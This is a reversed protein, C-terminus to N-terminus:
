FEEWFWEPSNLKGGGAGLMWGRMANNLAPACAVISKRLRHMLTNKMNLPCSAVCIGCNTGTKVFMERCKASDAQWMKVKGSGTESYDVSSMENDTSLAKAPCKEACRGCKKCFEYVGFEIPEDPQLPMDTIVKSIRCCTGYAPHALKTSRTLEGLGANIALPINVATDNASPIANYGLGRIFEALSMSTFAIQSYQEQTSAMHTLRPATSIGKEDMPYIMVIVYKMSAPIVQTKDELVCPVTVNLEAVEPDDSFRIPYSKKDASDYYSNYVFRRDLMCLGVDGAGYRFSLAKLIKSNEQASNEYQPMNDMKEGGIVGGRNLSSWSSGGYNGKNIVFNAGSTGASAAMLFAWDLRKYGSAGERIRKVRGEYWDIDSMGQYKPNWEGQFLMHNQQDFRRFDEAMEHRVDAPLGKKIGFMGKM